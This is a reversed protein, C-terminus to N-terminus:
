ARLASTRERAWEHATRKTTAYWPGEVRVFVAVALREKIRAAEAGTDPSAAIWHAYGLRTLRAGCIECDETLRGTESRRRRAGHSGHVRHLISELMRPKCGLIEAASVTGQDVTARPAIEGRDRAHRCQYTPHVEWCYRRADSGQLYRYSVM